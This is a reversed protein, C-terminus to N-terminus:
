GRTRGTEGSAANMLFTVRLHASICAGAGAGFVTAATTSPGAHAVVADRHEPVELDRV